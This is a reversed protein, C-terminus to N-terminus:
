KVMKYIFMGLLIVIIGGVIFWKFAKLFMKKKTTEAQVRFQGARGELRETETQLNYLSTGRKEEEKISDKLKNQLADMEGNLADAIDM